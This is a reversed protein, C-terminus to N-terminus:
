DAGSLVGLCILPSLERWPLWGIKNNVDEIKYKMRELSKLSSEIDETPFSTHHTVYLLYLEVDANEKKQLSYYDALQDHYETTEGDSNDSDSESEEGTGSKPAGYKAEIILTWQQSNNGHCEIILDPEKGGLAPWFKYEVSQIEGVMKKFKENDKGELD